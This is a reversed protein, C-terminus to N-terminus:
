TSERNEDRDRAMEAVFHGVIDVTYDLVNIVSLADLKQKALTQMGPNHLVSMDKETIEGTKTNQVKVKRWV